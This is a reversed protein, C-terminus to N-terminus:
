NPYIGAFKFDLFGALGASRFVPKLSDFPISQDAQLILTGQFKEGQAEKAAKAMRSLEDRLEPIIGGKTQIGKGDVLPVVVRGEVVIGDKGIMIVPADPAAVPSLTQALEIDQTKTLYEPEMSYVKVLFIMLVVMMDIMPTLNLHAGGHGHGAKMGFSGGRSGFRAM